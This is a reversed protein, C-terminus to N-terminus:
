LEDMKRTLADIEDEIQQKREIKQLQTTEPKALEGSDIRAKLKEIDDLKKRLGSIKKALHDQPTIAANPKEIHAVPRRPPLNTEEAAKGPKKSGAQATGASGSNTNASGAQEVPSWGIPYKLASGASAQQKISQQARCQFKPQEDQPIYNAKVRRAKRWTGDPRQTAAIYTEGTSTKIRVDGGTTSEAM